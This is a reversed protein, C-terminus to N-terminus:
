GSAMELGESDVSGALAWVLVVTVMLRDTNSQRIMTHFWSCNGPHTTRDSGFYNHLSNCRSTTGWLHKRTLLPQRVHVAPTAIKRTMIEDANIHYIEM